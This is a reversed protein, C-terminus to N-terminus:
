ARKRPNNFGGDERATKVGHCPACLSQWNERRWFLDMNGKHPVVHDVVTAVEVRGAQRCQVCLPHDALYTARALEWQRTYGRQRSTCRRQDAQQWRQQQHTCREGHAVTCGCTLARKPATPM